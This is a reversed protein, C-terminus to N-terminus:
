EEEWSNIMETLTNVFNDDETLYDWLINIWWATTEESDVINNVIDIFNLEIDWNVPDISSDDITARYSVSNTVSIFNDEWPIFNIQNTIINTLDTVFNPDKVYEFIYEETEEIILEEEVIIEPEVVIEKQRNCYLNNKIREDYSINVGPIILWENPSKSFINLLEQNEYSESCHLDIMDKDLYWIKWKSKWDLIKVKAWKKNIYNLSLVQFYNWKFTIWIPSSQASPLRRLLTTTNILWYEWKIEYPNWIHTWLNDTYVNWVRGDTLKVELLNGSINWQDIVVYWQKLYVSQLDKVWTNNKIYLIDWYAWFSSNILIFFLVFMSIIKKM